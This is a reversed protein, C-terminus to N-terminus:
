LVSQGQQKLPRYVPFIKLVVPRCYLGSSYCALILVTGRKVHQVYASMETIKRLWHTVSYVSPIFNWETHM